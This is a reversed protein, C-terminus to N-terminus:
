DRVILSVRGAALGWNDYAYTDLVRAADEFTKGETQRVYKCLEPQAATVSGRGAIQLFYSATKSLPQQMLYAMFENKMLYDDNIDYGLSPQSKWFGQIFALSQPDITYYVASVANRFAEDTFFISHWVEHALFTRRMWRQSEQAISIVAGNGAKYFDEDPIIISNALLIEKFLEEKENLPFQMKKAATFFRALSDASYDHANYSHQGSLEEDSLLRNRFGAKETFFSLRLFFDSQVKYNKFDFFLIHPFRDWEYLEYDACRWNDRKGGLILEIDTKLPFITKIGDRTILEATNSEMIVSSVLEANNELSFYNFPAKLLATQLITKLSSPTQLRSFVEGGANIKVATPPNQAAYNKAPEFFSMRIQPMVSYKSNTAPFVSACGAFDLSVPRATFNGGNSALGYFPILLNLDFGVRANGANIAYVRVPCAASVFFGKPLNQEETGKKIALSLDIIHEGSKKQIFNRLDTGASVSKKVSGSFKGAQGFDDSYIFGYYFPQASEFIRDYRKGKANKIGIRVTLSSSPSDKYIKNLLAIQNDTFKYFVYKSKSVKNRNSIGNLSIVKGSSESFENSYFFVNAYRVSFIKVCILSVGVLFLIASAFITYQKQSFSIKM